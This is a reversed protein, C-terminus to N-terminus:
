TMSALLMLVCVLEVVFVFKLVASRMAEGDFAGPPSQQLNLSDYTHYEPRIPKPLLPPMASDLDIDGGRYFVDLGDCLGPLTLYYHQTQATHWANNLTEVTNSSAPLVDNWTLKHEAAPRLVSLVIGTGSLRQLLDDMEVKEVAVHTLEAPAQKALAASLNMDAISLDRRPFCGHTDHHAELGAAMSVAHNLEQFGLVHSTTTDGGGCPRHIGFLHSAPTSPTTIVYVSAARPLVNNRLSVACRLPGGM